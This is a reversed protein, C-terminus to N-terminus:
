VNSGRNGNICVISKNQQCFIIIKNIKHTIGKRYKRFIVSYNYTTKSGCKYGNYEVKCNSLKLTPCPGALCCVFFNSIFVLGFIISKIQKKKINQLYINFVCEYM